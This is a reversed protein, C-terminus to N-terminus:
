TMVSTNHLIKVREMSFSLLPPKGSARILSTRVLSQATFIDRMMMMDM